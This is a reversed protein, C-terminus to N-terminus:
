NLSDPCDNQKLHPTGQPSNLFRVLLPRPDTSTIETNIFYSLFKRHPATRNSPYNMHTIAYEAIAFLTIYKLFNHTM